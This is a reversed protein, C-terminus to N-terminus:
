LNTTIKGINLALEIGKDTLFFAYQKRKKNKIKLLKRYTYGENENKMLLRSILSLDCGLARQIGEETILESVAYKNQQDKYDLLHLLLKEEVTLNELNNKELIIKIGGSSKLYGM